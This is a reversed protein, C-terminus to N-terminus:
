LEVTANYKWEQSESLVKEFHLVVAKESGFIDVDMMTPKFHDSTELITEIAIDILTHSDIVFPKTILM